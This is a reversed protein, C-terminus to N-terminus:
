FRRWVAVVPGSGYTSERGSLAARWGAQVRMGGLRRVLSVEGNVWGPQLTAEEGDVLGAYSQALVMWNRTVEVGVTSDFRTEDPAGIRWLRAAQLDVFVPRGRWRGSRGLLVRAEVDGDSRVRSVYVANEGEGASIAGLYVSLAGRRNQLATWRLGLEAPAAGEYGGFEDQGRAAVLKGQLTLRRTLGYEVFASAAEDYRPPIPVLAGSADFAEDATQREYRVIVQGQGKPMPWAGAHAAAPALVVAMVAAALRM